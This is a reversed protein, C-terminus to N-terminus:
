GVPQRIVTRLKEPATRRPDSLYIEHHRGTRELGRDSIFDHLRRITPAEDAYPGFHMLQAARGEHYRGYRLRELGPGAGPGMAGVAEAVLDGGVFDPLAIMMTWEWASRDGDLYAEMDEAWWLGELPAVVFDRGAAKALFKVRYAVGYLVVLAEGYEPATNPDGRGDVMLFGLEPVDVLQPEPDASYLARLEKKLDVKGAM